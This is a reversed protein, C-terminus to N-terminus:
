LSSRSAMADKPRVLPPEAAPGLSAVQVAEHITSSVDVGAPAIIVDPVQECFVPNFCLAAAEADCGQPSRADTLCNNM